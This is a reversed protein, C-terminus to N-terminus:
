PINCLNAFPRSVTKVANGVHPIVFLTQLRQRKQQVADQVGPSM